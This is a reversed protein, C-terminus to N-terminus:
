PNGTYGFYHAINTLGTEIRQKELRFQQCDIGCKEMNDMDPVVDNLLRRAQNVANTQEPTLQIKGAM